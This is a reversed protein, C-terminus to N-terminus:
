EAKDLGVLNLSALQSEARAIKRQLDCYRERQVFERALKIYAQSGDSKLDYQLVSQGSSPAESIRVNRPVITKYVREGLHQRVDVAVQESM